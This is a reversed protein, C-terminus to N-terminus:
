RKTFNVSEEHSSECLILQELKYFEHVRILGKTDKSHAGAERRYCPSFALYRKPLEEKSLIENSHFGMM